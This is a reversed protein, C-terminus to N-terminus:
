GLPVGMSRMEKEIEYLEAIKASREKLIARTERGPITNAEIQKAIRQDLYDWM